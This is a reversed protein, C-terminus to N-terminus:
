MDMDVEVSWFKVNYFLSQVMTCKWYTKTRNCLRWTKTQKVNSYKITISILNTKSRNNNLNTFASYWKLWRPQMQFLCRDIERLVLQYHLVSVIDGWPVNKDLEGSRIAVLIRSATNPVSQGQTFNWGFGNPVKAPSTAWVSLLAFKIDEWWWPHFLWYLVYTVGPVFSINELHRRHKGFALNQSGGTATLEDNM